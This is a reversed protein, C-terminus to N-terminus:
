PEKENGLVRRDWYINKKVDVCFLCPAETGKGSKM